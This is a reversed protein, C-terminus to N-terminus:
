GNKEIQVGCNPCTVLQTDRLTPDGKEDPEAFEVPDVVFSKIGLLDIDFPGLEPIDINIAALDLESWAAIANDSQVFQYLADYSGFSQYVVPVETWGNLKMAAVTGHGKAITDCYDALTSVVIPARVGHERLLYALREIQEPTHKNRNRDFPKLSSIPVLKDYKCHFIPESM